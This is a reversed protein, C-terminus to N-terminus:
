PSLLNFEDADFRYIGYPGAAFVIEDGDLLLSSYWGPTPFYAQAHPNEPDETNAILLGGNVNFVARGARATTLTAWADIAAEGRVALDSEDLITLSHLPPEDSSGTYPQISDHSVLLHGAGDRLVAAVARDDFFRQAQLRAVSGDIALRAVTTETNQEDWVLDRTFLTDGDAAIVDGPVNIAPGLDLADLDSADLTRVYHRVYPRPDDDVDIPKQVNYYVTNGEAILSTGEEDSPAQLTEALAPASPDRLDLVEFEYASWYRFAEYDSCGRETGLAPAGPQCEGTDNRCVYFEGSCTEEGGDPTECNVGGSYFVEPCNSANGRSDFTCQGNIPYEYCSRVWGLSRQQSKAEPFVVADEVVFHQTNHFGPHPLCDFCDIAAGGLPYYPGGHGLELRDTDLQSVRRPATPDSFDHVVITSDYRPQDPPSNADYTSAVSVLLDGVKILQAGSAVSLEAIPTTTELDGSRLVVELTAPESAQGHGFYYQEDRVRVLYEGFFFVDKMNPALDVRGRERPGDPNSIDFTSLQAESLNAATDTGLAFSRRVPTGHSMVGRRTLTRSSFTFLQVDAVSEQNAENWGEYPLLILGTEESGDEADISVAGELISFARDDWNAESSSWALEIEARALLPNPNDLVTIDYLSVALRNVRSEDNRGIGILRTNEHTARFFDNWGSVVFENREDCNGQDDISFAHFPDQRLYTVFFAKNEVFLTAFLSQDRGYTCHDLPRADDLDAIDFTELHNDLTTNGPRGFGPNSGSAVRLVGAHIDMNFKNQVIGSVRVDDRELMSGDPDSIDILGVSSGQDPQNYDFRAVMMVDTSAQIDQVFGGLDLESRERLAEGSVDFSKIVTRPAVTQRGRQDYQEHLQAAVYLAAQEGGQTLRSTRISGQVAAQALLRPAARDSLDINMVLGGQVSAVRVDERTGAYGQWDNLLVLARDGVVYLEVPEGSVALRGEIRPRELDRVDIIQVGRYRNLNLIRGDGLVRFLDGREVERPGSASADAAAFEGVVPASTPTSPALMGGASANRGEDVGSSGLGGAVGSGGNRDASKFETAGEEPTVGPKGNWSKNAATGDGPLPAADGSQPATSSSPSQGNGPMDASRDEDSCAASSLGLALWCGIWVRSNSTM